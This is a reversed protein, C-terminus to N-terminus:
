NHPQINELLHDASAYININAPCVRADSVSFFFSIVGHLDPEYRGNHHVNSLLPFYCQNCTQLGGGGNVGGMITM